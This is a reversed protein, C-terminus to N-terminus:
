DLVVLFAIALAIPQADRINRQLSVLGYDAMLRLTRSLNPV